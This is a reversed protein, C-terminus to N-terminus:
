LTVGRESPLAVDRTPRRWGGGGVGGNGNRVLVLARQRLGQAEVRLASAQAREQAATTRDLAARDLLEDAIALISPRDSVNVLGAQNRLIRARGALTDAEQELSRAQAERSTAASELRGAREIMESAQLSVPQIVPRPPRVAGEGNGTPCALGVSALTLSALTIAGFIWSKM